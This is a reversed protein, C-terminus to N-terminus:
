ICIAHTRARACVSVCVCMYVCGMFLYVFLCFIVFVFGHCKQHFKGILAHDEWGERPKQGLTESVFPHTSIKNKLSISKKKKQRSQVRIIRYPNAEKVRMVSKHAIGRSPSAKHSALTQRDMKRM